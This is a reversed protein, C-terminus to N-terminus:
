SQVNHHSNQTFDISYGDSNYNGIQLGIKGGGCVGQADVDVRTYHDRGKIKGEINEWNQVDKM